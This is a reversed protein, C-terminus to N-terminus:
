YEEDIQEESGREIVIQKDITQFQFVIRPPAKDEGLHLKGM